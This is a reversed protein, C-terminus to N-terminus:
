DDSRRRIVREHSVIFDGETAEECRRFIRRSLADGDNSRGDHVVESQLRWFRNKVFGNSNASNLERNNTDELRLTLRVCEIIRVILDDNRDICRAEAHHARVSQARDTHERWIFRLNWFRHRLNLLNKAALVPQALALVVIELDTVLGVKQIGEALCRM